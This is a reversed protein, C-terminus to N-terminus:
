RKKPNKMQNRLAIMKSIKHLDELYGAAQCRIYGSDADKKYIFEEIMDRAYGGYKCLLKNLSNFFPKDYHYFMICDFIYKINKPYFNLEEREKKTLGHNITKLIDKLEAAYENIDDLEGDELAEKVDDIYPFAFLRTDIFLDIKSVSDYKM